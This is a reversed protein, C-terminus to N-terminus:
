LQTSNVAHCVPKKVHGFTENRIKALKEVSKRTSCCYQLIINQLDTHIQQVSINPIVTFSCISNSRKEPNNRDNNCPKLTSCFMNKWDNETIPCDNDPLVFDPQCMCCKERGKWLHFLIHKNANLFQEFTVGKFDLCSFWFLDICCNVLLCRALLLDLVETTVSTKAYSCCFDSHRTSKHVPLQRNKDFLLEMQSPNLIKKKKSFDRDVDAANQM